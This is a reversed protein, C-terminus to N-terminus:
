KNKIKYYGNEEIGKKIKEYREQIIQLEEKIDEKNIKSYILNNKELPDKVLDYCTVFEYKTFDNLPVSLVVSHKDNRVGLMLNRRYYHPCGAGMYEILAYNRGHSKLVSDADMNNPKKINCLDLITPVIDKSMFYGDLKQPKMNEYYFMIPIHYTENYFNTVFQERIPNYYYSFGHDATVVVITNKLMGRKDLEAFIKKLCNDSYKLSLDYCISGKYKSKISSLYKKAEAMEEDILNEDETDYTFFTESFHNDLVQMYAFFPKENTRKDTWDLFHQLITTISPMDKVIDYNEGIKSFLDRDVIANMYNMFYRKLKKFERSKLYNKVVTFSVRNNKLNLFFNKWFIKIFLSKYKKSIKKKFDLNIRKTEKYNKIKFLPHELKMELIKMSYSMKDEIFKNYEDLLRKKNDSFNELDLTDYIIEVSKDKNSINDFYKIWAKFNDEVIDVVLEKEEKTLNEIESFYKLRYNWAQKFMFAFDYYRNEFEHLHGSPYTSPWYTNSFIEYDNEEFIKLISKHNYNRKMHGTKDLTNDGCLLSVLAAETYPAESFMKDIKIGKNILSHLFPMPIEKGENGITNEYTVSDLVLMIVNKKM